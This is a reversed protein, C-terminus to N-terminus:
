CAPFRLIAGDHPPISARVSEGGYLKLELMKEIHGHNACVAITEGETEHLRVVMGRADLREIRAYGRADFLSALFAGSRADPNLSYALGAFGSVWIVEGRGFDSQLAAARGDSFRARVRCGEGCSRYLQRYADCLFGGGDEVTASAPSVPQGGGPRALRFAEDVVARAMAVPEVAVGTMGLLEHLLSADMDLQGNERYLGFGGEAILRGGDKAFATLAAREAGDLCLGMPVYLNRVGQAYLDAATDGHVFRVPIGADYLARYVGRFSRNYKEEDGM